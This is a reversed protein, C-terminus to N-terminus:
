PWMNFATGVEVLQLILFQYISIKRHTYQECATLLIRQKM